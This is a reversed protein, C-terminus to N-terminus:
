AGKYRYYYIAVVVTLIIIIGAGGYAVYTMLTVREQNEGISSLLEDYEAQLQDLEEEAEINVGQLDLILKRDHIDEDTHCTACAKSEVEFRHNKDYMHCDVCTVGSNSHIGEQFQAYKEKGYEGTHCSGCLESATNVAMAMGAEHCSECTVGEFAYDGSAADYGTTHCELCESPSGQSQWESQFAEDTFANSHATGDWVEYKDPHCTQCITPGVFDDVGQAMVITNTGLLLIGSLSITILITSVIIKLSAIRDSESTQM